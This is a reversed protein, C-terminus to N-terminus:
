KKFLNKLEDKAKKEAAKKLSDVQAKAKAEAEKKLREAEASAKQKEAGIKPNTVTGGISINVPVVDGVSLNAGKANASSILNNLVSNAAGGFSSRPIQTAMTYDITQDFGNSGAVKAKIGNVNIDFPDVFVRGNVFKFSPSVPPIEFKKWSDMKLVDAIKNFVPFNSVIVNGTTLRGSGALSNMVPSMKNDLDGNVIM